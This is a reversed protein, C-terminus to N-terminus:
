KNRSSIAAADRILLCTWPCFLTLMHDHVFGSTSRSRSRSWLSGRARKSGPKETHVSLPPWLPAADIETYGVAAKCSCCYISQSPNKTLQSCPWLELIAKYFHKLKIFQIMWRLNLLLWKLRFCFRIVIQKCIYKNSFHPKYSTQKRCHFSCFDKECVYNFPAGRFCVFFDEKPVYKQWM